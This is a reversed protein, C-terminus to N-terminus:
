GNNARCNEIAKVVARHKEHRAWGLPSRREDAWGGRLTRSPCDLNSAHTDIGPVALLLNLTVLRGHAAAQLLPTHGWRDGLTLGVKGTRLLRDVIESFDAGAANVMPTSNQEDRNAGNVDAGHNCLLDVMTIDRTQVARSLQTIRDIPHCYGSHQAGHHLLMRVMDVNRRVNSEWLAFRGRNQATEGDAPSVSTGNELLWGMADYNVYYITAHLPEPHLAAADLAHIFRENTFDIGLDQIRGLIDTNGGQASACALSRLTGGDTFKKHLDAGQEVLLNFIGLHSNRAALHLPTFGLSNTADINPRTKCVMRAIDELGWKAVYHLTTWGDSGKANLNTLDFQSQGLLWEAVDSQGALSAFYFPNDPHQIEQGDFKTMHSFRQLHQIADPDRISFLKWNSHAPDFARFVKATLKQKNEKSCSSRHLLGGYIAYCLFPRKNVLGPVFDASLAALDFNDYCVYRTCTEALILHQESQDSFPKRRKDQELLGSKIEGALSQKISLHIPHISWDSVPKNSERVEVLTGRLGVLHNQAFERDIVDPVEGEAFQATRSETVVLAEVLEAVTLPRMAFSVWRLIMLARAQSWSDLQQIYHLDREYAKDLDKLTEGIIRLIQQKSGGGRALQPMVLDVWLLMGGSKDVLATVIEDKLEQKNGLRLSKGVEANAYIRVDEQLDETTIPRTSVINSSSSRGEEEVLSELQPNHRSVILMRSRTLQLCDLLKRIFEEKDLIEDEVCEDLGDVVYICRQTRRNIRSFIDWLESSIAVHEEHGEFYDAVIEITGPVQKVIQTIWSRLVGLLHRTEGAQWKCFYFAVRNPM